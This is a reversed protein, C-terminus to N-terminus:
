PSHKIAYFDLFLVLIHYIISLRPESFEHVHSFTSITCSPLDLVRSLVRTIASSNLKHSFVTIIIRQKEPSFFLNCLQVMRRLRWIQYRTVKAKKLFSIQLLPVSIKQHKQYEFCTTLANRSIKNDSGTNATLM